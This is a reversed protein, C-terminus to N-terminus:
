EAEEENGSWVDLDDLGGKEEEIDDEDTGSVEFHYENGDEDSDEGDGSGQQVLHSVESLLSTIDSDTRGVITVTLRLM